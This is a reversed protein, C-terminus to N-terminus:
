FTILGKFYRSIAIYGRGTGGWKKGRNAPRDIVGTGLLVHYDYTILLRTRGMTFYIAASLPTMGVLWALSSLKDSGGCSTVSESEEDEQELYLFLSFFRSDRPRGGERGICLGIEEWM